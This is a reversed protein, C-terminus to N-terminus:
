IQRDFGDLPALFEPMTEAVLEVPGLDCWDERGDTACAWIHGNEDPGEIIFPAPEASGGDM